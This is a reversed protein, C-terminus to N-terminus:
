FGNAKKVIVKQPKSKGNVFPKYMVSASAPALYFEGPTVARVILYLTQSNKEISSFVIIKEDRIDIYDPSFESYAWEPLNASTLRPNEPELGGALPIEIACNPYYKSSTFTVKLIGLDGQKLSNIKNGTKYDLLEESITVGNSVANQKINKRYGNHVIEVYFPTKNCSVVIDNKDPLNYARFKYIGKEFKGKISKGDIKLVANFSINEVNKEVFNGIAFMSWAIEQTTYYYLMERKSLDEALNQILKAIVNKDYNIEEGVYIRVAEGKLPTYFDDYLREKQDPQLYLDKQYLLNAFDSNGCNYFTAAYWMTTPFDLKENTVINELQQLLSPNKQLRGTKSLVYYGLPPISDLSQIYNLAADISSQPVSFGSNKAELLVLTAYATAWREPESGGPWYSFGGSFTQMSLIQGIGNQVYERYKELTIKEDIFPLLKKLKIMAFTKTSVQEICGYPYGLLMKTMYLKSLGPITSVYIEGEYGLGVYNEFYPKINQKNTNVTLTKTEVTKATAPFLPIKFDESYQKKNEAFVSISIKFSGLKEGAILPIFITKKGQPSLTFEKSFEPINANTIKAKLKGKIISDKTNILTVPIQFKDGQTLFRPITPTAIIDSKVTVYKSIGGLKEKSVAAVMVRLKGNYQPIKVKYKLNGNSDSKLKGSWISVIKTFQPQAFGKKQPAGEGGGTALYKKILWGFGDASDLGLAIPRMVGDFPNPSKFNTIQLVGEDVIAITAEFQADGKLNITMYNGPKLTKPTDIKLDLKFKKPTIKVRKVGYAREVLYNDGTHVLLASVYVCPYGEPIKFEYTSVKGKAEQWKYEIINDAEVTWLIKGEFPIATKITAKEGYDYQKKDPQIILTEPTEAQENGWWGWGSVFLQAFNESGRVEIVIDDYSTQPTYTIEFKGNKATLEKEKTLPILTSNKRWSFSDYYYYSYNYAVRYITYKLKEDKTLTKGNKSVIVGKIKLPVGSTVKSATCNLGIYYNKPYVVKNFVKKTVRGSGAESVELYAKINVPNHFDPLPKIQVKINAKGNKDVKIPSITKNVKSKQYYYPLPGFSYNRYGEPSFPIEEISIEGKLTEGSAPAGFLYFAETEITFPQKLNIKEPFKAKITMREPAFAEIFAFASYVEKDAVFLSFRYKGTSFSPSTKFEFESFGNEDTVSNLEKVKKGEPNTIVVKVPISLPNYTKNKRIIVGFHVKEGPRYLDREFYLYGIYDRLSTDGKIDFNSTPLMSDGLKLYNWDNETQATILYSSKDGGVNISAFGKSDTVARGKEINANDFVIIKANKVPSADNSNVVFVNVYKENWKAIITINSITFKTKDRYYRDTENSYSKAKLVYIGKEVKPIFKKLDIFYLGSSNVPIKIKYDSKILKGFYDVDWYSAGTYSYWTTINKPPILYLDCKVEKLRKAVLPFKWAGKTGFYRGKYLFMLKPKHNPISVTTRYDNKLTEGNTGTLGSFLIVTYNEGPKFKGTISLNGKTPYASFEIEPSITILNKIFEKKLTVPKNKLTVLRFNISYMDGLDNVRVKKIFIPLSPFGASFKITYDRSTKFGDLSKIGQKFLITYVGAKKINFTLILTDKNTEGYKTLYNVSYIECNTGNKDRIKIFNQIDSINVSFNFRVKIKGKGNKASLATVSLPKLAPTKFSFKQSKFKLNLKRKLPIKKVFVTYETDPSPKSLLKLYFTNSNLWKGETKLSPKIEIFNSIERKDIIVGSTGFIPESFYITLNEPFYDLDGYPELKAKVNIAKSKLNKPKKYTQPKKREPLLIKVGAIIVVILVIWIFLKKKM